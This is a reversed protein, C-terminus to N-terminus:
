KILHSGGRRRFAAAKVPFQQRFVISIQDRRRRAHKFNAAASSMKELEKRIAIDCADVNGLLLDDRSSCEDWFPFEVDHCALIQFKIAYEVDDNEGFRYVKGGIHLSNEFFHMGNGMRAGPENQVKVASQPPGQKTQSRRESDPGPM